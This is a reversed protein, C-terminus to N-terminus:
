EGKELIKVYGDEESGPRRRMLCDRKSLVIRRFDLGLTAHRGHGSRGMFEAGM